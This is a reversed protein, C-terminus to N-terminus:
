RMLRVEGCCARPVHACHGCCLPRCCPSPPSSPRGARSRSSWSGPRGDPLTGLVTAAPDDAYCVPFTKHPVGCAVGDLGDTVAHGPKLAVRLETPATTMRLRIGTLDEM